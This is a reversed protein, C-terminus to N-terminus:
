WAAAQAVRVYVHLHIGATPLPLDWVTGDTVKGPIRIRVTEEDQVIGQAGCSVCPYLWDRGTGGCAPCTAFTPLKLPLIGGSEAEEQSLVIEMSLHEARGSKPLHAGTFHRTTWDLFEEEASRRTAHFARLISVDEPVLPEAEQWSPTRLPEGGLSGPTVLRGLGHNYARRRDPDSLVEYAEVVDRFRAAHAAGARDPHYQKVLNRYATRIAAPTAERPVGLIVYFNRRPM